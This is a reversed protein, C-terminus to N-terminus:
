KGHPCSYICLGCVPLQGKKEISAFYKECKRADYRIERSENPNFNKGTFAKVPCANVCEMCSGCQEDITKYNPKLPADTLISAFRVGPGDKPTILLCNKGIWGIGALHAALKHSFVACIRSDDIRKAAPIPYARYGKKQLFSGILSATLDLRQNIVDYAHHKYSVAVSRKLRNPLQEIIPKLLTIGISIAYPFEAIEEGGQNYIFGRALSLPAIGFYNINNKLALDKIKKDLMNIRWLCLFLDILNDIFDPLCPTAVGKNVYM